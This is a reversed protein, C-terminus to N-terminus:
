EDPRRKGGFLADVGRKHAEKKAIMEEARAIEAELSAIYDRLEEVGMPTLDLPKAVVFRPPDLEDPNM